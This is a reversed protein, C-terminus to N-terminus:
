RGRIVNSKQSTIFKCMKSIATRGEKFFSCLAWDHCMPQEVATIRVGQAAIKKLGKKVAPYFLEHSGFFVLLEPFDRYDDIFEPSLDPSDLPVGKWWNDRIYDTMALSLLPDIKEMHRLIDRNKGNQLGFAPSILIIGCPKTEVRGALSLSLNAGASDGLFLIRNGPYRELLNRYLQELWVLAESANHEPALPYFPLYVTAGTRAAIRAATDYHLITPRSMGGGGALFLVVQERRKTKGKHRLIYIPFGQQSEVQVECKRNLWAPPKEKGTSTTIGRSMMGKVGGGPLRNAVYCITEIVSYFHIRKM